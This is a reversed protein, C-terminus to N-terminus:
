KNVNKGLMYSIRGRGHRMNVGSKLAQTRGGRFLIEDNENKEGFLLFNDFMAPNDTPLGYRGGQAIYLDIIGDGDLDLMNQGHADIFSIEESFFDQPDDEFVIREAISELIQKGTENPSPKTLALEMRNNLSGSPDVIKHGHMSNFYDLTGDDDLDVFIPTNQHMYPMGSHIPQYWYSPDQSFM